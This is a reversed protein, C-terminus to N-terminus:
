CAPRGQRLRCDVAVLLFVAHAVESLHGGAAGPLFEECEHGGVLTVDLCECTCRSRAMDCGSFCARKSANRSSRVAVPPPTPQVHRAGQRANRPLGRGSM